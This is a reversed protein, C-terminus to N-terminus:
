ITPITKENKLSLVARMVHLLRQRPENIMEMSRWAIFRDPRVLICGDEEIERVNEWEYYVDEYDQRFGISFAAIPVGIEESVQQTAQKWAEGGIGTLLTFRGKGALDMVAVPKEPIAKNLWVHPLRSGPYTSKTHDLIPDGQFEPADGEDIRYIANSQYRQNMEIGLGQFEFRTGQIASFFAKRRKRGAPTNATMESFEAVRSRADPALIGAAQWVPLHDLYGQFARSCTTLM